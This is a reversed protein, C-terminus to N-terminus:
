IMSEKCLLSFFQYVAEQIIGVRQFDIRVHMAVDHARWIWREMSVSQGM